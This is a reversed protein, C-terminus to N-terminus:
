AEAPAEGSDDPPKMMEQEQAATLQELAQKAASYSPDLGLARLYEDKALTSNHAKQYAVGLNYHIQPSTPAVDIAKELIEIVNELDDQRFYALGLYLYIQPDSPDLELAQKLAEIGQEILGQRLFELGQDRPSQGEATM